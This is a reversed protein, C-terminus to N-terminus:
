FFWCFSKIEVQRNFTFLFLSKNIRTNKCSVSSFEDTARGGRRMRQQEQLIKCGWLGKYLGTLKNKASAHQPVDQGEVAGLLIQFTQIKRLLLRQCTM